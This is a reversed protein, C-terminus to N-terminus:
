KLERFYVNWHKGSEGISFASDLTRLRQLLEINRQNILNVRVEDDAVGKAEQPIFSVGGLGAWHAIDIRELKAEQLSRPSCFYCNCLHIVHITYTNSLQKHDQIM